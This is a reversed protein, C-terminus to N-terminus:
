VFLDPEGLSWEYHLPQEGNTDYSLGHLPHLTRYVTSSGVVTAGKSGGGLVSSCMLTRRGIETVDNSMLAEVDSTCTDCLGLADLALNCFDSSTAPMEPSVMTPSMDTPFFLPPRAISLTPAVHTTNGEKEDGGEGKNKKEKQMRQEVDAHHEQAARQRIALASSIAAAEAKKADWGHLETHKGQILARRLKMGLRSQLVWALTVRGCAAIGSGSARGSETDEPWAAMAALGDKLMFAIPVIYRQTYGLQEKKKEVGQEKNMKGNAFTQDFYLEKWRHTPTKYTSMPLVAYRGASAAHLHTCVQEVFTDDIKSTHGDLVVVPVAAAAASKDNQVNTDLYVLADVLSTRWTSWLDHKPRQRGKSHMPPLRVIVNNPLADEKLQQLIQERQICETMPCLTIILQVQIHSDKLSSLSHILSLVTKM